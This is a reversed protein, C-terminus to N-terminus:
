ALVRDDQREYRLDSREVRYRSELYSSSMRLALGAQLGGLTPTELDCVPQVPYAQISHSQVDEFRGGSSSWAILIIFM